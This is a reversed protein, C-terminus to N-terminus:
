GAFGFTHPLFLTFWPVFAVILVGLLLVALYPLMARAAGEIPTRMVACCVYFGVGAPPLFAGVGMAVVLIIGYHLQSIGIQGAIPLLLPALVNLAPLGELLTGVVILLVVSGILFITQSNHVGQLLGVLRQPLYAVTLAWSFGAAAALIFLVMGTLMATDIVARLFESWGMARYFVTALVLGYLVAFASVETPTAIGLLIGAFLMVPMGLPLAAGLATRLLVRGGIWRRRVPDRRARFWILVMLCLAIVAAPLLGGIFLAAISLSTISGLVLMAISPPVTEGMAASAALVAAGEADSIHEHNLMDRMVAGVAAVDAAKSGSLGSILYMSGVMVQLLGGRLHGVLAHVFRVLRLSIGGREMILGAFIFFPVALLVFNSTGNVMSQPLAMMPAAAAAWLFFASGLMLAFGVPLGGLVTLLLLGLAAYMAPDGALWPQWARHLAIALALAALLPLGVSLSRRRNGRWLREAAYLVLLAMCLVLPLVMTAAPLGLIPTREGWTTGVVPIAVIGSVAAAILVLWDALVLVGPQATEPLLDVIARVPSHHGRRYAVAGGVFTIVSLAFQAVEETWLFGSTALARAIVNAVVVGLEGLMAIVLIADAVRNVAGLLSAPPARPCDDGM